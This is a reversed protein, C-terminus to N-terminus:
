VTLIYRFNNCIRLPGVTDISLQVFASSPTNTITFKEKNHKIIKTKACIKCKNVYNKVMKNLNKWNYRQKLKNITKKIGTHGGLPTDHYEKILKIKIEDNLIKIPTTYILIKLQQRNKYKNKIIDNYLTKFKDMSINEFIRDKDCLALKNINKNNAFHILKELVRGLDHFLNDGVKNKETFKESTQGLVRNLNDSVMNQTHTIDIAGEGQGQDRILDKSLKIPVMLEGNLEYIKNRPMNNNNNNEQLINFKLKLVNKIETLSTCNWIHTNATKKNVNETIKIPTSAKKM